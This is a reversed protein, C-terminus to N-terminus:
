FTIQQERWSPAVFDDMQCLVFVNVLGNIECVHYITNSGIEVLVICRSLINRIYIVQSSGHDISKIFNATKYIGMVYM